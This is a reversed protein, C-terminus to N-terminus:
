ETPSDPPSVPVETSGTVPRSRNFAADLARVVKDKTTALDGQL